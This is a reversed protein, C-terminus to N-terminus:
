ALAEGAAEAKAKEERWLRLGTENVHGTLEYANLIGAATNLANSRAVLFDYFETTITVTEPLELPLRTTADTVGTETITM